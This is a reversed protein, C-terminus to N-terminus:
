LIKCLDSKVKRAFMDAEEESLDEGKCWQMFHKYEHALTEIIQFEDNPMDGAIYICPEEGVEQPVRFVGFGSGGDPTEITDFGECIHLYVDKGTSYRMNLYHVTEYIQKNVFKIM